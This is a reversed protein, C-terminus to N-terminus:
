VKENEAYAGSLARIEASSMSVGGVSGLDEVGRLNEYLDKDM